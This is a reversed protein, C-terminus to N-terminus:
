RATIYSAFSSDYVHFSLRYWAFFGNRQYSSYSYYSSYSSIM